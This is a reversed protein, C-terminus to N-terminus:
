SMVASRNRGGGAIELGKFGMTEIVSNLSHALFSNIYLQNWKLDGLSNWM